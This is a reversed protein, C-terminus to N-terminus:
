REGSYVRRADEMAAEAFDLSRLYAAEFKVAVAGERKHRELTPTVVRALYEDLSAPLTAVNAESLYRRLLKEEGPFFTKYDANIQKLGENNLPFLLADVFSVWRFRAPVLGRGMAIRNALMVEIGIKDLVWSPYNDGQERAIRRKTEALERLHAESMDSYSYGFLARWAAM